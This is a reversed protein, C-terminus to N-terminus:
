KGAEQPAAVALSALLVTGGLSWVARACMHSEWRWFERTRARRQRRRSRLLKAYESDDANQGLRAPVLVLNLGPSSSTSSRSSQASLEGRCAACALVFAAQFGGSRRPLPRSCCDM